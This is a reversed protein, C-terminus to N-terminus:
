DDGEDESETDYDTFGTTRQQALVPTLPDPIELIPHWQTELDDVQSATFFTEM